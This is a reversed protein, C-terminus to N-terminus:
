RNVASIWPAGSTRAYSGAEAKVTLKFVYATGPTLGRAMYKGSVTQWTEVSETDFIFERVKVGDKYIAYTCKTAQSVASQAEWEILVPRTGATINLTLAPVDTFATVDSSFMPVTDDLGVYGLENGGSGVSVWSAGNTRYTEAVDTAHYTSGIPPVAAAPRASYLGILSYSPLQGVPVKSDAGLTAVGNVAGKEAANLKLAIAANLSTELATDAAAILPNVIGPVEAPTVAISDIVANLAVRTASVANNVLGAFVPDNMAAIEIEVNATFADWSAQWENVKNTIELEANSIGTQFEMIANDIGADFEPVLVDNLWKRMGELKELYTIGDPYTFPTINSLPSITYPFPQANTFVM